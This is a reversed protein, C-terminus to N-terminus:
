CFLFGWKKAFAEEIKWAEPDWPVAGPRFSFSPMMVIDRGMEEEDIVASMSILADRMRPCPFRDIGSFHVTLLQSPTPHLPLPVNSSAPLSKAPVSTCSSLGLVEGNIFLASFVTLQYPLEYSLNPAQRISSFYSPSSPSLSVFRTLNEATLDFANLSTSSFTSQLVSHCHDDVRTENASTRAERLRTGPFDCM